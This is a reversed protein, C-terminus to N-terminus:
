IRIRNLEFTNINTFNYKELVNYNGLTVQIRHIRSAKMPSPFIHSANLCFEIHSTYLM